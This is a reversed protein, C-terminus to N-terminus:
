FNHGLNLCDRKLFEYKDPKIKLNNNRLCEFVERLKNNYDSM